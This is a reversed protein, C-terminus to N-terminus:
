PITECNQLVDEAEENKGYDCEGCRACTNVPVSCTGDKCGCNAGGTLEWNHGIESCEATAAIRELRAVEAKAAELHDRLNGM